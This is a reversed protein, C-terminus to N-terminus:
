AGGGSRGPGGRQRPAARGDGAAARVTGARAAAVVLATTCPWSATTWACGSTSPSSRLPCPRSWISCWAPCSRWGCRQWRAAAPVERHGPTRDRGAAQGARLSAADDPGRRPRPLPRGHRRSCRTSATADAPATTIGVLAMFLPVLPLSSRAPCRARGTPSLRDARARRRSSWPPHGAGSARADPLRGAGGPGPRGRHGAPRSPQRQPGPRARAARVADLVARRLDLACACALVPGRAFEQARHARRPRPRSRAPWLLSTLWRLRGQAASSAVILQALVGAQAVTLVAGLAQLVASRRLYRRLSPVARLLRPDLPRSMAREAATGATSRSRRGTTGLTEAASEGQRRSSRASAATVTM